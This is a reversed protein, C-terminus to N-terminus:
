QLIVNAVAIALLAAYLPAAIPRRVRVFLFPLLLTVPVTLLTVTEATAAPCCLSGCALLLTICAFLLIFRPKTGIAYRDAFVFLISLLGLVVAAGAFLLKPLPLLAEPTPLPGCTLLRGLLLLPAAFDGGAGWNVYCLVFFPLLVGALAVTLERLTRRFLQVALPLLLLLPLAAPAVLPLLGLYLSARFIADFGFGNRFSRAYNKTALALLAPAACSSLFAGDGIGCLLIGYLPIALCTGVSYLNNRATLRGICLGTFLILLGGIWRAGGPHHAEFDALWEGPFRIMMRDRPEKTLTEATEPDTGSATAKETTTTETDAAATTHDAAATTHDAAATSDAATTNKGATNAASDTATASSATHAPAIGAVPEGNRGSHTSDAAAIPRDTHTAQLSETGHEPSATHTSTAPITQTTGPGATLALSDRAFGAPMGATPQQVAPSPVTPDSAARDPQAATEMHEAAHATEASEANEATEAAQRYAAVRESYSQPMAAPRKAAGWMAVAALILLTLFAPILQQRAIDFKM